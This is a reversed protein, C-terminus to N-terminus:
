LFLKAVIDTVPSALILFHESETLNSSSYPSVFNDRLQCLKYFLLKTQQSKKFMKERKVAISSLKGPIM